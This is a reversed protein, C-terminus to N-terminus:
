GPSLSRPSYLGSLSEAREWRKVRRYVGRVAEEIVDEGGLSQAVSHLRIGENQHEGRGPDLKQSSGKPEVCFLLTSPSEAYTEVRVRPVHHLHINTTGWADNTLM